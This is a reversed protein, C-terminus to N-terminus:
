VSESMREGLRILAPSVDTKDLHCNILTFSDRNALAAKLAKDLDGETHCEFGWGDGLLDPLRHYAWNPIDNFPGEALFRETTYGHNNLVVVIPNFGLKLGTALELCTMQFAGDGVLVLPRHSKDAAQVGVSAPVAFGMSTYYAPSLFETHGKITLDSAGFLCDGVDAVVVFKEEDLLRNIRGFLQRTTLDADPQLEFGAHVSGREKPLPRKKPSLDAGALGKVFDTLLVDHFHSHGVRLTESTAYVCRGPDLRATFIGLNIDSMFTGLLIACDSDEVYETVSPRGMAGEYVGVHLPHTESVASKGLLTSCIPIENEEALKIVEERLGFRHTEVGAVIVPKKAADIMQKAAALAHKLADHDSREEVPKPEHPYPPELRVCDRPLEIYVPRKFRHAAALCRDIERFATLPDDLVTNAVTITEFVKRQTDFDRVRHHLLPDSEREKVGPSGTIVVVPSKEAFAGAVSNCTSLGGVCYTVCLAGMGHVRAYADAAYGANDERTAGIVRLDSGELMGYFQLVFDGPIGFVDRVGYDQLRRILYGGISNPPVSLDAMPLQVDAVVRDGPTRKKERKGPADTPASGAASRASM